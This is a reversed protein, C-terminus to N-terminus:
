SEELADLIRRKEELLEPSFGCRPRPLHGLPIERRIIGDGMLLVRDGLALAEDLSHTVLLMACRRRQQLRLLLQQMSERTFADLAAFPEDLLLLDPQKLLARGLAVRQCMGGSLQAPLYSRYEALGLEQLLAATQGPKPSIGKGRLPLCINEEVNLWPMLRPEQFVTAAVAGQALVINGSDVTELGNILRLLTTKGCGSRGIVVAIEGESLQLSLGRLVPRGSFAKKVQELVLM